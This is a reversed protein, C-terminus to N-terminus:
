PTDGSTKGRLRNLSAEAVNVQDQYYKRLRAPDPVHGELVAQYYYVLAKGLAYTSAAALAGGAVSGVVSGLGPVVKILSRGAHRGLLGLGLTGALEGLRQPSMPQGYLNALDYVLRTQVASILLLDVVPIPVAGATGALTSYAVITPAARQAFLDQLDRQAVLLARLTGAQADPLVQTLVERLQPGGYNPENLGEEPQTLDIPVVRDVLGTFTRRHEALSEVLASPLAPAGEVSNGQLDFPYPLQHQQQPYAEHLCTVVLVVPRNWAKRIRQLTELITQQAHDLLRVTVVVVHAEKSFAAIDEAPNYGPEDLGRTDLFELLPTQEAPFSYKSSFRTCPRYGRGIEAREAGTLYRVISTKGSQTKGLLWFVPVPTQQRVEELHKQLEDETVRPAFVSRLRQWLGNGM